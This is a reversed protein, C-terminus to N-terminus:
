CMCWLSSVTDVCRGDSRTECRLRLLWVLCSPSLNGMSIICDVIFSFCEEAVVDCAEVMGARYINYFIYLAIFTSVKPGLDPREALPIVNALNDSGFTVDVVDKPLLRKKLDEFHSKLGTINQFSDTEPYDKM